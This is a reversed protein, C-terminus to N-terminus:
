LINREESKALTHLLQFSHHDSILKMSVACFCFRYNCVGPILKFLCSWINGSTAVCRHVHKRQSKMLVSEMLDSPDM